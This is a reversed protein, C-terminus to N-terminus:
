AAIVAKMHKAFQNLVQEFSDSVITFTETDAFLLKKVQDSKSSFTAFNQSSSSLYTFRVLFLELKFFDTKISFHDFLLMTVEQDNIHSPLYNKSNDIQQPKVAQTVCIM